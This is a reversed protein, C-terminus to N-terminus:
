QPIIFKFTIDTCSVIYVDLYVPIEPPMPSIM